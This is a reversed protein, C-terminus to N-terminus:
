SRTAHIDVRAGATLESPRPCTFRSTVGPGVGLHYKVDCQSAPKRKIHHTIPEFSAREANASAELPPIEIGDSFRFPAMVTMAAGEILGEKPFLLIERRSREEFEGLLEKMSHMLEQASEPRLEFFAFGILGNVFEEQQPLRHFAMESRESAQPACRLELSRRQEEAARVIQDPIGEAGERRLM